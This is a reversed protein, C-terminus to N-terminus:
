KNIPIALAAGSIAQNNFGGYVSSKLVGNKAEPKASYSGADYFGLTIDNDTVKYTSKIENLEKIISNLSGAFERIIPEGSKDRFLMVVSNGEFKGMADKGKYKKNNTPRFLLFTDKGSKDTLNRINSGFGIPQKESNWNIDSVKIQRLNAFDDYGQKKLKNFEEIGQSYKVTVSGDSEKKYVPLWKTKDKKLAEVSGKTTKFQEKNPGSIDVDILFHAIGEVNNTIHEGGAGTEYGMKDLKKDKKFGSWKEKRPVPVYKLGESNSAQRRYSMFKDNPNEKSSVTALKQFPIRSGKIKSNDVKKIEVTTTEEITGDKVLANHIYKKTDDSVRSDSSTLGSIVNVGTNIKDSVASKVEDAKKGVYDAADTISKTVSSLIGSEEKKTITTTNPKVPSTVKATAKPKTEVVPKVNTVPKVVVSKVPESTTTKLISALEKARNPTQKAWTSNLMEDAAKNYDKLNIAKEFEKFKSLGGAGLQFSMETLVDQVQKPQSDFTDIVTKASKKAKTLSINLLRDIQDKNLEQKGSVVANYDAGVQKLAEKAATANDGDLRLGHGITLNGESDKYAKTFLKNGSEHRIVRSKLGENSAKQM